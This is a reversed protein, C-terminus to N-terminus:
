GEVTPLADPTYDCTTPENMWNSWRPADLLGPCALNAAVQNVYGIRQVMLEM